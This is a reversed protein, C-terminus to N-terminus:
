LNKGGKNWYFFLYHFLLVKLEINETNLKKHYHDYM